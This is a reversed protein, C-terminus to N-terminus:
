NASRDPALTEAMKAVEQAIRQAVERTMSLRFPGELTKLELLLLDPRDQLVAIRFGAVAHFNHEEAM